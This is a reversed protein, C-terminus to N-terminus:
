QNAWTGDALSITGTLTTGARQYRIIQPYDNQPNEFTAIQGAAPEGKFATPGVGNPYASLTWSQQGADLRLQEFFIAKGNRRTVSFGFLQTGDLSSTWHEEVNGDATMWCGALWSGPRRTGATNGQATAMSASPEAAQASCGAAAIAIATFLVARAFLTTLQLLTKNHM